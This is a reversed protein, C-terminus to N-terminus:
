RNEEIRKLEAGGNAIVTSGGPDGDSDMKAADKTEPLYIGLLAAALAPIAM